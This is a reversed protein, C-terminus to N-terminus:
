RFFRRKALEAAAFYAVLVAAVALMTAPTPPVFDFLERGAASFPAALAVVICLLSAVVLWGSPVSRFFPQRTRIAFTVIIESVASEVFWATRFAATGLHLLGLAAGILLLDFVASLTGFWVMFRVLEPISWTRPRQLLEGDVRDTAVTVLPVDSLFNNLLIQSPLLPIFPLFLSALAVTLMNGFNASVTNYLYKTINAFTKRGEVIGGALVTLDKRLLVIDAAEKAVDTGGDVAIGVDAARLAPADNVGDGLFGVVHRQAALAAILARKQEPGVRAFATARQVLEALAAPDAAALADGTVVDAEAVALGVDRCVRATVRPSDGSIVKLAVGLRHIDEVSAAATAKPPDRFLLCGLLTLGVEDASSSATGAFPRAALAIVRVAERERAEVLAVFAQLEAATLGTCVRLVAEPAGKVLLRTGEPGRVLVSERRREHDFANEDLRAYAAARAAQLAAVRPDARLARDLPNQTEGTTLAGALLVAESPAGQPDVAADLTFAGETLTGTKDCCLVDVNGLDEVSMLRKTVVQDKAMRLAGNALTITVIAPLVEPTIGVALAVAFLFSEFWGKALALNAVFVFLTLAAILWVLMGSLRRINRQFDTERPKDALLRATRGMFTAPGTAVVVGVGWGSAVTSGLFAGCALEQPLRGGSVADAVKASPWAEGTLTAEDLALDDSAVLRLDAPVLDGLEIRVVDGPVLAAAPCVTLAGDRWVKASRTVYHQLARLAREARYEQTFGLLANLAVVGLIVGADVREGLFWSVVAAGVLVLVLPSTVQGALIALAHRRAEPLRNPGYRGARREAEAAGLGALSSDLRALVAAAPQAWM